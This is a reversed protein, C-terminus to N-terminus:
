GGAAMQFIAVVCSIISVIGFIVFVSMGLIDNFAASYWFGGGAILLTIIFIWTAISMERGALHILLIGVM